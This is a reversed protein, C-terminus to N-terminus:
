KAEAFLVDDFYAVGGTGPSVRLVVKAQTVGAPAELTKALRTWDQRGSLSGLVTESVSGAPNSFQVAVEASTQLEVTRVFAEIYYKAGGRVPMETHWTRLRGGPKITLNRQGVYSFRQGLNIDLGPMVNYAGWGADQWVIGDSDESRHWGPPEKMGENPRFEFSHSPAINIMSASTNSSITQPKNKGDPTFGGATLLIVDMLKAYPREDAMTVSTGKGRKQDVRVTLTHEGAPLTVEGYHYWAFVQRTDELANYLAVVRIDRPAIQNSYSKWPGSDIRIKSPSSYSLYNERIWLQYKGAKPANLRYKAFWGTDAPPEVTTQLAQIAAGSCPTIGGMRAYNFNSAVPDEAEIWIYPTGERVAKELGDRAEYYAWFPQGKALLAGARAAAGSAARAASAPLAKAAARARDVAAGAVEFPVSQSQPLGEIIVSDRAATSDVVIGQRIWPNRDRGAWEDVRQLKREVPQLTVKLKGDTATGAPSGDSYRARANASAPFTLTRPQDGTQVITVPKGNESYSFATLGNGMDLLASGLLRGFVGEYPDINREKGYVLGQPQYGHQAFVQKSNIQLNGVMLNWIDGSASRAIVRSGPLQRLTQYERGDSDRGFRSTYFRDIQPISGLDKRYGIVSIRLGAEIAATLEDRFRESAPRNELNVIFQPTDPRLSFTPLIWVGNSAKGIPERWWWGGLNAYEGVPESYLSMSNPNFLGPYRFYATPKYGPLAAANEVVRGYTGLWELQRVDATLSDTWPDQSGESPVMNYHFFGKAGGAVLANINAYMHGFRSTYGPMKNRSPSNDQHNGEASETVILWTTKTAQELEGFLHGAMFLMMPEGNGYSEMGLGDHGTATGLDNIHWFDIDSFGKYIVPVDYLKKFQDAIDSTYHLLGRGFGEQIDYNFQSKRLDMRYVRGTSRDLMFQWIGKGDPSDMRDVPALRAAAEFDPLPTDPQWASNLEAVTKYRSQLWGSYWSYWGPASPFFDRNVNMENWLPDVLFRFGPGLNVKSYHKRVVEVYETYKNDWYYMSYMDPAERELAFTVRYRGKEPVKVDAEIQKRDTVRAEGTQVVKRAAEDFVVFSGSLTKDQQVKVTGSETVEARPGPAPYYFGPGKAELAQFELGYRIGQEDLYDITQQFFRYDDDSYTKWPYPQNVGLHLYIDRVGYQKLLDIQSKVLNWDRNYVFMGGIPIFPRGDWILTHAENIHWHHEVGYKDVFRGRTVIKAQRKPMQGSLSIRARGEAAETHVGAALVYDGPPIESPIALDVPVRVPAGAKWDTTPVRPYVVKAARATDDKLLYLYLNQPEQLAKSAQVSIELRITQGLKAAGPGSVMVSEVRPATQPYSAKQYDASARLPM